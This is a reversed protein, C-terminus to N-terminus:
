GQDALERARLLVAHIAEYSNQRDNYQMLGFAGRWCREDIAARIYRGTGDGSIKDTARISAMAGVICHGGNSDKWDRCWHKGGDFLEIMRDIMYVALLGPKTQGDFPM